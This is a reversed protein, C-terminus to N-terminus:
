MNIGEGSPPPSSKAIMADHYRKKEAVLADNTKKNQYSDYAGKAVSWIIPAAALIAPLAPLFGGNTKIYKIPKFTLTISEGKNIKTIQYRTLHLTDGNEIPNKDNVFVLSLSVSKKNFFRDAILNKQIETFHVHKTIHNSRRPENKRVPQENKRAYQELVFKEMLIPLGNLFKM